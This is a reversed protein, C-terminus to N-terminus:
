DVGLFEAAAWAAPHRLPELDSNLMEIQAERLAQSPSTKARLRRYFPTLLQATTADDIDWLMGIVSQAGATLFARSLSPMGEIRSADGRMTACASLVM